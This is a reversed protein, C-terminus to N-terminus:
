QPGGDDLRWYWIAFVLMNTLWLAGGSRLLELPPEKKGPMTIVLLIVSAMLGLTLIAGITIGLIHNLSHRGMHHAFTTPILLTMVIVPLLWGPGIVLEKPLALHIGTVAFLALIVQWRPEPQDIRTM